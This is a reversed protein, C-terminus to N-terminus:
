GRDVRAAMLEAASEQLAPIAHSYGDLTMAVSSHGLRESMVKPNIGAALGNTAHGHRLDHLRIRPLDKLTGGRGRAQTQDFLKTVRDPHLGAGKEDAFVWTTDAPKAEFRPM